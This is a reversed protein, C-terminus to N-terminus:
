TRALPHVWLGLRSRDFTLDKCNRAEHESPFKLECVIAGRSSYAEVQSSWVDKHKYTYLIKTVTFQPYTFM